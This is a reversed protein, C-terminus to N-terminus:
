KSRQLQVRRLQELGHTFVELAVLLDHPQQPRLHASIVRRVRTGGLVHAYCFCMGSNKVGIKAACQTSPGLWGVLWAPRGGWLAPVYLTLMYM